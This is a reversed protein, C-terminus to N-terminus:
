GGGGNSNPRAPVPAPSAAPAQVLDGLPGLDVGARRAIDTFRAIADDMVKSADAGGANATLKAFDERLGKLEEVVGNVNNATQAGIGVLGSAKGAELDITGLRGNLEVLQFFVGWLLLGTQDKRKALRRLSIEAVDEGAENQFVIADHSVKMM